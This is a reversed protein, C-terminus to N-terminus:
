PSWELYLPNFTVDMSAAPTVPVVSTDLVRWGALPLGPLSILHTTGDLSWLVWIRRDSRQFEYGKVGTYGNIEQVFSADRLESSAFQFAYYAPLKNLSADLLESMRWGEASYWLNARLGQALAGAYSAV